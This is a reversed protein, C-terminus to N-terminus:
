VLEASYPLNRYEGDLDLGYGIVFNRGISFGVYDAKTETEHADPKDLLTAIRVSKAGAEKVKPLLFHLSRGSDIIDEVVLVHKGAVSSPVPTVLSIEGTSKTGVYSKLRTTEIHTPMKLKRVLDAAFLIAGHLVILIVLPEGKPHAKNIEEALEATRVRIQDESLLVKATMDRNGVKVIM